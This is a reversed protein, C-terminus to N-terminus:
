SPNSGDNSLTVQFAQDAPVAVCEPNFQNGDAIVDVSAGDPTCTSPEGSGCSISLLAVLFATALSKISRM